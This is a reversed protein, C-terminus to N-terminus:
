SVQYKFLPGLLPGSQETVDCLLGEGFCDRIFGCGSWWLALIRPAPGEIPTWPGHEQARPKSPKMVTRGAEIFLVM